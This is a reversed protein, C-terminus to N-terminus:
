MIDGIDEIEVGMTDISRASASIHVDKNWGLRSRLYKVDPVLRSYIGHM